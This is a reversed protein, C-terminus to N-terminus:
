TGESDDGVASMMGCWRMSCWMAAGVCYWRHEAIVDPELAVAAVDLVNMLLRM